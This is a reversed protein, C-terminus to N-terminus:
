PRSINYCRVTWHEHGLERFQPLDDLADREELLDITCDAYHERVEEDSVSFPPGEMKSQDYQFANQLFKTGPRVLACLQKVYPGRLEPPLAVLAARDWVRDIAGLDEQRLKFIDGCLIRTDGHHYAVHFEHEEITPSLKNDEFFEEVAQPVLEVGVVQHGREALWRMDLTKGCLPVLVRHPGDGLFLEEHSVLNDHIESSHFGIRGAEWREHWASSM